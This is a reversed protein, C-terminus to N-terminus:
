VDFFQLEWAGRCSVANATGNDTVVLLSISNMDIDAVTGANGRSYNSIVDGLNIDINHYRVPPLSLNAFPSALASIQPGLMQPGSDFLVTYRHYDRTTKDRQSLPEPNADLLFQGPALASGLATKERVVYVRYGAGYPNAQQTNAAGSIMQIDLHLHHMKIEAGIRANESTGQAVANLCVNLATGNIISGSLTAVTPNIFKPNKAV